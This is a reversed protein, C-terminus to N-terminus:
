NNDVKINEKFHKKSGNPHILILNLIYNGSFVPKNKNDEGFWNIFDKTAILDQSITKILFGSLNYIEANIKYGALDLNFQISLVDQFGDQNPSITTNLIQYLKHKDNLFTDIFQSNKLGPSGYYIQKSASQWNQSKDSVFSPNIKELSIGETLTLLPNHWNKDYSFSDILKFSTKNFYSLILSGNDDDLLPLSSELILSSDSIPYSEITNKKNTTLALYTHPYILKDNNIKIWNNQWSPNSIYLQDLSLLKNSNNYIEVYDSGGSKPNFLVENWLLDNYEPTSPLEILTNITIMKNGICDLIDKLTITYSISNILPEDLLIVVENESFSILDISAVSRSPFINYNLPNTASNIDLVENFKLKIEWQSLPIADILIPGTSDKVHTTYSNPMGPTGGILSSSPRWVFQGKCSQLSNTLELSYGGEKQTSTEFWSDSYYIEDLIEDKSNKLIIYDGSNNLSPFNNLGVVSGFLKYSSTDKIPCCIIIENPNIVNNSFQAKSSGGDSISLGQLNLKKHTTNILEIFEVEPLGISPSPDALFENILLDGKIPEETKEFTFPIVKINFNTNGKLDEINHYELHYIQNSVFIKSFALEYISNSGSLFIISDPIGITPVTYNSVLLSSLLDIPENFQILIKNESIAKASIIEPASTDIGSHYILIDDFIFKDKRTETYNCELGFLANSIKVSITDLILQEFNFNTGGSYDTEIRWTTDTAKNIKFRCISPDTSLKGITGSGLLITNSNNKLFFNWKDLNGTEGIEIFYSSNFLPQSQDMLFYIRVLNSSSPAFQLNVFFEWTILEDKNQYPRSIFSKGASPAQLNLQHLNNIIFNSTDGSWELLNDKDFTENWQSFGFCPLLEFIILSFRLIKYM